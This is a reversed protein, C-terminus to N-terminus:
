NDISEGGTDLDHGRSTGTPDFQRNLFPAPQPSMHIEPRHSHSASTVATPESWRHRWRVTRPAQSNGGERQGKPTRVPDRGGSMM